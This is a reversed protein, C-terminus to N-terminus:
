SRACKRAGGMALVKQSFRGCKRLLYEYAKGARDIQTFAPLIAPKGYQSSYQEIVMALKEGMEIEVLWRNKALSQYFVSRVLDHVDLL